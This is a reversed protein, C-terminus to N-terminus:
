CVSQNQVLQEYHNTNTWIFSKLQSKLMEMNMCIM